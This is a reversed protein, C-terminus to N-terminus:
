IPPVHKVFCRILVTAATDTNPPHECRHRLQPHQGDPRPSLCAQGIDCPAYHMIVTRPLSIGALLM